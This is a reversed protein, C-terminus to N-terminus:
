KDVHRRKHKKNANSTHSSRGSKRVKRSSFFSSYVMFLGLVPFALLASALFWVLEKTALAATIEHKKLSKRVHGQLQHHYDTATTLFRRYAHIAQDQYPQLIVKAKDIHPQSVSAVQDIYPGSLDKVTQLHPRLFEEAKMLHPNIKDWSVEYSSIVKAKFVEVHPAVTVIVQQWQEKVVPSWKHVYTQTTELHPKVWDHAAAAKESAKDLVTDMAPKVHSAWYSTVFAQFKGFHVVLWPPLWAGHVKNMSHLNSWNSNYFDPHTLDGGQDNNIVKNMEEAKLKAEAQAKLMKTEALKFAKEAKQVRTKQEALDKQLKEYKVSFERARSEAESLQLELSERKQKQQSLSQELKGVQRELEGIRVYAKTAEAEYDGAGKKQIAEIDNQLSNITKSNEEIFKEKEAITSDKKRLEDNKEDITSELSHAKDELKKVEHKLSELEKLLAPNPNEAVITQPEQSEVGADGRAIQGVYGVFLLLLLYKVTAM